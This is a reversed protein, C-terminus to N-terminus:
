EGFLDIVELDIPSVVYMYLKGTWDFKLSDSPSPEPTCSDNEVWFSVVPNAGNKYDVLAQNFLDIGDQNLDAFIEGAGLADYISQTSINVIIAETDDYEMWISGTFLWDHGPDELWTVEYSGAILRADRIDDRTLPPDVSELAEDVEEAIDFYEPDGVYNASDEREQFDMVAWNRFVIDLVKEHLLKCGSLGVALGLVVLLAVMVRMKNNM